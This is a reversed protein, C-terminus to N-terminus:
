TWVDGANRTHEIWEKVAPSVCPVDELCVMGTHHEGHFTLWTGDPDFQITLGPMLQIASM